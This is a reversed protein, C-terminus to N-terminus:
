ARELSEGLSKACGDTTAEFLLGLYKFAASRTLVHGAYTFARCAQREPEFVLVETKDLSVTVGM